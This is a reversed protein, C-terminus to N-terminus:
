IWGRLWYYVTALYDRVIARADLLNRYPNGNFIPNKYAAICIVDINQKHFVHCARQSHFDSTVVIATRWGHQEMIINSYIANTRTDKSQNEQVVDAQPVGLAVAYPAMVASEAVGDHWALGGTVILKGAFGKKYLEVGKQMREEVGWPLTRTERILGGGLVIIVDAKQPTEDHVLPKVLLRNFGTFTVLLLLVSVALGFWLIITPLTHRFFNKM